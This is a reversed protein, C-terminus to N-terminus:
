SNTLSGYNSTAAQLSNHVGSEATSFSGHRSWRILGLTCQKVFYVLRILPVLLLLLTMYAIIFRSCFLASYSTWIRAFYLTALTFSALPYTMQCVPMKLLYQGTASRWTTHVTNRNASDNASNQQLHHYNQNQRFQRYGCIIALVHSHVFWALLGAWLALGLIAGAAMALEGLLLPATAPGVVDGWVRRSQLGLAMISLTLQSLAGLPGILMALPHASGPFNKIAYRINAVAFSLVPAVSMGWLTYALGLLASAENLPLVLTLDSATASAVVTPLFMVTYLSSRPHQRRMASFVYTPVAVIALFAAAGACCKWLFLMIDAVLPALIIDVIGSFNSLATLVSVLLHGVLRMQQVHRGPNSSDGSVESSSSSSNNSNHTITRSFVALRLLYLPLFLLLLFIGAYSLVTVLLVVWSSESSWIDSTPKDFDFAQLTWTYKRCVLAYICLVTSLELWQEDVLNLGSVIAVACYRVRKRVCDSM